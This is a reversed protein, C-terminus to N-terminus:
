HCMINLRSLIHCFLAGSLLKCIYVNCCVNSSYVYIIASMTDMMQHPLCIVKTNAWLAVTNTGLLLAFLLERVKDSMFVESNFYILRSPLPSFSPSSLLPSFSLVPPLPLPCLSSQSQLDRVCTYTPDCILLSPWMHTPQSSTPATHLATTRNEIENSPPFFFLKFRLIFSIM